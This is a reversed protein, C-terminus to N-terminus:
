RGGTFLAYTKPLLRRWIIIVVICICIIIFPAIFFAATAAAISIHRMALVRMLATMPYEHLLYIPFSFPMAVYALRKIRDKEILKGSILFISATMLFVSIRWAVTGEFAIPVIFAVIFLIIVYGSNKLIPIRKNFGFKMGIVFLPISYRILQSLPMFYVAIMAPILIYGPIKKVAPVLVIAAVNLVFLERLFWLPGYYNPAVVFPIGVLHILWDQVTFERFNDFFAPLVRAGLISILAYLLIFLVYPVVLSKFKKKLNKWYDWNDKLVLFYGSLLFFVPVGCSAFAHFGRLYFVEADPVEMYKFLKYSHTLVVCFTAIIKALTAGDSSLATTNKNMDM